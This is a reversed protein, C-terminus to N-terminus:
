FNFFINFYQFIYSFFFVQQITTRIPIGDQNIVIVGQVGPLQMLRKLTDEAESM